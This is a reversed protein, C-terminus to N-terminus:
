RENIQLIRHSNPIIIGNWHTTLQNLSTGLQLVNFTIDTQNTKNFGNLVNCILRIDELVSNQKQNTTYVDFSPVIIEGNKDFQMRIDQYEKCSIKFSTLNINFYELLQYEKWWVPLSNEIRKQELQALFYVLPNKKWQLSDEIKVYQVAFKELRALINLKHKAKNKFFGESQFDTTILQPIFPTEKM